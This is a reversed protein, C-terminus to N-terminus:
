NGPLESATERPVGRASKGSDRWKWVALGLALPGVIAAGILDIMQCRRIQEFKIKMEEYAPKDGFTQIAQDIDSISFPRTALILAQTIAIFLWIWAPVCKLCDFMRQM